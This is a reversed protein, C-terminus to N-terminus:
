LSFRPGGYLFWCEELTVDRLPITQTWNRSGDHSTVPCHFASGGGDVFHCRLDQNCLAPDYYHEATSNECFAADASDHARCHSWLFYTQNHDEHDGFGFQCITYNECLTPNHYRDATPNECFAEHEPVPEAAWCHLENDLFGHFYCEDEANCLTANHFHASDPNACYPEDLRDEPRFVPEVLMAMSHEALYDEVEVNGWFEFRNGSESERWTPFVSDSSNISHNYYLDCLAFPSYQAVMSAGFAIVEESTNFDAMMDAIEPDGNFYYMMDSFNSSNTANTGNTDNASGTSSTGWGSSAGPYLLSPDYGLAILQDRTHIYELMGSVMAGTEAAFGVGVAYCHQALKVGQEAFLVIRANDAEADQASCSFFYEQVLDATEGTSMDGNENLVYMGGETANKIPFDKLTLTPGTPPFTLEFEVPLTGFEHLFDRAVGTLVTDNSAYIVGESTASEPLVTRDIELVGGTPLVESSCCSYEGPAEQVSKAVEMNLM